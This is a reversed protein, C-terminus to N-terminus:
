VQITEVFQAIVVTRELNRGKGIKKIELIFRTITITEKNRQKM